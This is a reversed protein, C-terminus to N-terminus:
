AVRLALPLGDCDGLCEGRASFAAGCEECLDSKRRVARLSIHVCERCIYHGDTECDGTGTAYEWPAGVPEFVDCPADVDRIGPLGDPPRGGNVEHVLGRWVPPIAMWDSAAASM